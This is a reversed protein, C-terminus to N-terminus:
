CRCSFWYFTKNGFGLPNTFNRWFKLSGVNDRTMEMREFSSCVDMRSEKKKGDVLILWEERGLSLQPFLYECSKFNFIM